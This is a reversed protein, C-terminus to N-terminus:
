KTLTQSDTPLNKVLYDDMWDVTTDSHGVISEDSWVFSASPAVGAYTTPASHSSVGMAISSSVSAGTQVSGSITAKLVYTKSGSVEQDTASTVTIVGTAPDITTTVNALATSENAADYIAPSLVSFAGSSSTAVNWVIKRWALTGGADATITVKGVTMTGTTLVTTPLAVNTITPKTKFAYQATGARSTNEHLTTGNSNMYKTSSLTIGVNVGTPAFGTGISGLNAYVNIVKTGNYAVPVSLGTATAATGNMVVRKLETGGDKFVLEAIASADATSGVTVGIETLTFSDNSASYKFSAIKPMSNGVVNAAVPSSPDVATTLFGVSATITQGQVAVSTVAAGLNQSAGSVTLTGTIFQGAAVASSLNAYVAVSMTGDAPLTENVSWTQSLAGVSKVGTTNEGYVVYLDTVDTVAIDGDLTLTFTDINVGEAVGATLRWEGIKYATQPVVASQNAYASYKTLTLTGAAVTLQNADTSSSSIYDLTATRYVNATGSLLQIQVTDDGTVDNVGDSDYVDGRVEITVCQNQDIILASGFSFQTGTATLINATSGIQVGNAFVAGNRISGWSPDSSTFAVKLNEIKLKEGQAQFTYKALTIGSAGLIVNGSPSDATKVIDLTGPSYSPVSTGGDDSENQFGIYHSGPTNIYIAYGKTDRIDAISNVDSAVAAKWPDVLAVSGPNILSDADTFDVILDTSTLVSDLVQSPNNEDVNAETQRDAYTPNAVGISYWGSTAFSREFLRENPTTSAKFNFTLTQSTATKNNIFYGYLPEFEGTMFAWGSPTSADLLYIGFNTSTEPASFSHSELIRPTSVINWGPSLTVSQTSVVAAYTTQTCLLIGSIFILLGRVVSTTIFTKKM